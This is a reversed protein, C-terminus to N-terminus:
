PRFDQITIENILDTEVRLNSENGYSPEPEKFKYGTYDSKKLYTMLRNLKESISSTMEILSNLEEESIYGSDFCRYSQSRTEGCSGKAISCFQRFEKDGDREFGEAINDMVSGSSSRIQYKLKFDHKFADRNTLGIVLQSLARAEQWVKLDEFRKITAM